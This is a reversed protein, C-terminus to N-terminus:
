VMELILKRTLADVFDGLGTAEIVFAGPGAIVYDRMYDALWPYTDLLALANVTVGATEAASRVTTPEVGANSFGNAVVDIVKRAGEVGNTEFEPLSRLIASGIATAGSEGGPDIGEIRQALASIEEPTEVVTWPVLIRLANPGDFRGLAIATRGIPGGVLAAAVTPDGLAAAHGKVQFGFRGVSVSASADVLFLIEMDVPLDLATTPKDAPQSVGELVPAVVLLLILATVSQIRSVIRAATRM